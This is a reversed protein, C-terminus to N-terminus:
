GKVNSIVSVRPNVYGGALVMKHANYLCGDFDPYTARVQALGKKDLYDAMVLTARTTLMYEQGAFAKGGNLPDAKLRDYVAQTLGTNHINPDASNKIEEFAEAWSKFRPSGGGNPGIGMYYPTGYGPPFGSTGNTRAIVNGLAWLYLPTWDSHGTLVGLALATMMYDHQWPAWMGDTLVLRWLSWNPDTMRRNYYSLQNDLLKKWYSSPHCTAALGGRAEADQTAAHAMFLNRFAWAVGRYEGYITAIGRKSSEWGDALVTFNANYQLNELFIPDLTALYAVYSMECFHAQQPQWGGGYATYAPARVDPQGKPLWPAGQIGPLDAANAGPYRLLDIPKGTAEDRFHLPCSDNAQAWAIMSQPSGGLMFIASPDTILGIDPREGTTPMYITIGASDMPGKFTYNARIDVKCGTDGFPFMRNSAVIQAPTRAVAIAAPRYTWRANWWHAGIDAEFLLKGDGEIRVHHPGLHYPKVTSTPKTLDGLAGHHFVIRGDQRFEVYYSPIRPGGPYNYVAGDLTISVKLNSLTAGPATMTQASLGTAGLFTAAAGGELIARRDVINLLKVVPVLM